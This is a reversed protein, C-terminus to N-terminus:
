IRRTRVQTDFELKSTKFLEGGVLRHLGAPVWPILVNEKVGASAASNCFRGTLSQGAYNELHSMEGGFQWRNQDFTLNQENNSRILSILRWWTKDVKGSKHHSKSLFLNKCTQLRFSCFTFLIASASNTAWFIQVLFAHNVVNAFDSCFCCLHM